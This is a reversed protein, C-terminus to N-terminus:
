INPSARIPLRSGASMGGAFTRARPCIPSRERLPASRVHSTGDNPHRWITFPAIDQGYEEVAYAEVRLLHDLPVAKMLIAADNMCLGLRQMSLCVAEKISSMNFFMGVNCGQRRAYQAGNAVAPSEVEAFIPRREGSNKNGAKTGGPHLSKCRVIPQLFEYKTHHVLCPPWAPDLQDYFMKKCAHEQLIDFSQGSAASIRKPVRLQNYEFEERDQWLVIAKNGNQTAFINGGWVIVHLLEEVGTEETWQTLEANALRFRVFFTGLDATGASDMACVPSHRLCMLMNDHIERLQLKSYVHGHKSKYREIGALVWNDKGSFDVMTEISEPQREFTITNRHNLYVVTHYEGDDDTVNHDPRRRESAIFPVGPGDTSEFVFSHAADQYHRGHDPLWPVGGEERHPAFCVTAALKTARLRFVESFMTSHEVVFRAAYITKARHKPTLKSVGTRSYVRSLIAASRTALNLLMTVAEFLRDNDQLCGDEAVQLSLKRTAEEYARLYEEPETVNAFPEELTEETIIEVSRILARIAVEFVSRDTSLPMYKPMLSSAQEPDDEEAKRALDEKREVCREVFGEVFKDSRDIYEAKEGLANQFLEGMEVCALEAKYVEDTYENHEESVHQQLELFEENMDSLRDDSEFRSNCGVSGDSQPRAHDVWDPFLDPHEVVSGSQVGVNPTAAMKAITPAKPVLIRSVVEPRDGDLVPTDEPQPPEPMPEEPTAGSVEPSDGTGASAALWPQNSVERDRSDVDALAGRPTLVPRPRDRRPPPPRM